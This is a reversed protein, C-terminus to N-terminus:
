KAHWGSIDGFDPQYMGGVHIQNLNGHIVMLAFLGPASKDDPPEIFDAGPLSSTETLM